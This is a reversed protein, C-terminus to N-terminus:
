KSSNEYKSAYSDKAEQDVFDVISERKQLEDSDNEDGDDMNIEQVEEL